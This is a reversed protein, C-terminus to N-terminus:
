GHSSKLYKQLWAQATAWDRWVTATSTELLEAVEPITFGGFYRMTVVEAQRPNLLALQELAEDLALLEEPRTNESLEGEELTAVHIGGGRKEAKNKRAYDVLIHRMAQAAVRFFHSRDAFGLDGRAIKIYAEHLLATTNLTAPGSQRMRQRHALDHLEQYLLPLLAELASASGNSADHLLQTVRSSGSTQMTSSPPPLELLIASFCCLNYVEAM